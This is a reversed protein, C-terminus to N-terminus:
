VRLCARPRGGRGLTTRYPTSLGAYTCRIYLVPVTHLMADPRVLDLVICVAERGNRKAFSKKKKDEVEIERTVM